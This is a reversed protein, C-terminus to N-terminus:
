FFLRMQRDKWSVQRADTIRDYKRSGGILFPSDPDHLRRNREVTERDYNAYCYLCGHGCTNYAGIDSGLLCSCGERIHTKGAPVQLGCGLAREYIERTMCGSVDAGYLAPREGECCTLIRMGHREGAEVFGRCLLERERQGVERAEPFNKRTKAYLDIFSIVCRNVYGELFAAMQEFRELHVELSYAETILVPDYRWLVADPSFRRSLERVAELVSQKRPVGPEIDTGYPTVTVYWLQGFDAIEDLRALMPLPNKTCFSICDVVDPALRYRSVQEPNYPNRVLVYEERIRNYFWRSYFAPIDTRSGTNIIM